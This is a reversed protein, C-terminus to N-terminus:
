DLHCPALYRRVYCRQVVPASKRLALKWDGRWFGLIDRAPQTATTSVQLKSWQIRGVCRAANRWAHKAGYILETDRLQYTDTAEIEKTVEELREMHAKSGSRHPCPTSSIANVLRSPPCLTGSSEEQSCAHECKNAKLYCTAPHLHFLDTRQTSTCLLHQSHLEM